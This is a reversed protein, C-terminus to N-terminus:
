GGLDSGFSEDCNLTLTRLSASDVRWFGIWAPLAAATTGLFVELGTLSSVGRGLVDSLGILPSFTASLVDVFGTLLSSTSSTVSAFTM